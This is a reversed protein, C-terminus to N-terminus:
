TGPIRDWRLNRPYKWHEVGPPPLVERLVEAQDEPTIPDLLNPLSLILDVLEDNVENYRQTIRRLEDRLVKGSERLKKIDATNITNNKLSKLLAQVKVSNEEKRKEAGRREEKLQKALAFLNAVKKVDPKDELQRKEISVEFEAENAIM